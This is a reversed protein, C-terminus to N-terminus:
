MKKDQPVYDRDLIDRRLYQMLNLLLAERCELIFLKKVGEIQAYIYLYFKGDAPAFNPTCITEKLGPMTRLRDYSSSDVDGVQLISNPDIRAVLKRKRQNFVKSIRLEGYVCIYDFSVNFRKKFFSAAVAGVIFSALLLFFFIWGPLVDAFTYGNIPLEIFNIGFWGWICALVIMIVQVTFLINYYIKHKRENLNVASEEYLSEIAM